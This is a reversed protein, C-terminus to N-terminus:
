EMVMTSSAHAPGRKDRGLFVAPVLALLTLAAAVIFVDDFAHVAATLTLQKYVVLLGEAQAQALSGGHTLVWQQVQGLSQQLTLNTSTAGQALTAAHFTQRSSLITVFIATGFSGFVQRAVNTLSSARSTLHAPATNLAATMAPMMVLGMAAGRVALMLRLQNDSTELSLGAFPLTTLALLPLGVLLV